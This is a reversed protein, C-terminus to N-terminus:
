GLVVESVAPEGCDVTVGVGSDSFLGSLECAMRYVRGDEPNVASVAMRHAGGLFWTSALPREEIQLSIDEPFLEDGELFQLFRGRYYSARDLPGSFYRNGLYAFGLRGTVALLLRLVTRIYTKDESVREGKKVQIFPAVREVLRTVTESGLVGVFAFYAPHYDETEWSRYAGQLCYFAYILVSHDEIPLRRVELRAQHNNLRPHNLYAGLAMAAWVIGWTILADTGILYTVYMGSVFGAPQAVWRVLAHQEKNSAVTAEVVPMERQGCWARVAKVGRGPLTAAWGLLGAGFAGWSSQYLTAVAKKAVPVYGRLTSTMSRFPRAKALCAKLRQDIDVVRQYADDRERQFVTVVGDESAGSQLSALKSLSLQMLHAKADPSSRYTMRKNQTWKACMKDLRDFVAPKKLESFRPDEFLTDAELPAQAWTALLREYAVWQRLAENAQKKFRPKLEDIKALCQAVLSQQSAIPLSAQICKPKLFGIAQKMMEERSQVLKMPLAKGKFAASSRVILRQATKRYIEAPMEAEALGPLLLKAEVRKYLERFQKSVQASKDALIKDATGDRWTKKFASALVSSVEHNVDAFHVLLLAQQLSGERCLVFCVRRDDPVGRAQFFAHIVHKRILEIQAPTVAKGLDLDSMQYVADTIPDGLKYEIKTGVEAIGARAMLTHIDQKSYIPIQITKSEQSPM